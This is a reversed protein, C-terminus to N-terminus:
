FINGALNRAFADFVVSLEVGYFIEPNETVFQNYQNRYILRQNLFNNLFISIEMGQYVSKSVSLNFYYSVPKRYIQNEGPTLTKSLGLRKAEQESIFYYRGNEYYGYAYNDLTSLDKDREQDFLRHFMNFRIWIGLTQNIYDIGYNLIFSKHWRSTYPFMPYGFHMTTDGSSSIEVFSRPADVDLSRDYSTRKFNYAANFNFLMNLSPFRHTKFVVEIGQSTIQGMNQQKQFDSLLINQQNRLIKGQDSPWNPWFYQSSVFPMEVENITGTTKQWYGTLSVGFNSQKFDFGIEIKRQKYGQLDPNDVRYVQTTVLPISDTGTPNNPNRGWELLDYYFPDPYILNLSPAKSSIGFASRIQIAHIPKILLGLRPNWFTGNRSRILNKGGFKQPNYMEARLGLGILYPLYFRGTIQDEAFFSLQTFGPVDDFSRPREGTKRNPPKLPDFQRGAGKNDEFTYETGWLLHHHTNQIQIQHDVKLKFGLLYESGTTNVESFYPDSILIGEQTGSTMLNSLYVPDSVELKRLYDKRRTYNLFADIKLRSNEGFKKDLTNGFNLLYDRAWAGTLRPDFTLEYDEFLRSYYIRNKVSMDIGPFHNDFNVGASLRSVEDGDVRLDRESYAYNLNTNVVSYKNLHFGGNLNMERTDPNTKAKLRFPAMGSTTRVNVLGTTLDGYEASPVGVVVEVNEINDAAISRLDIGKDTNTQVHTGYGVGTGRNMNSNNSIPIGDVMIKTGFLEPYDYSVHKEAGRLAIFSQSELGPRNKREVGPIQDLIDGLHTAQMHEIEGSSIQYTTRFNEPILDRNATVSIGGIAFYLFKEPDGPLMKLVIRTIQGNLVTVPQSVTTYYNSYMCILEYKGEGLPQFQFSGDKGSRTSTTTGHLMILVGSIPQSSQYDLIVGEVSGAKTDENTQASSAFSFIMLIGFCALLCFKSRSPFTYRLKRPINKM